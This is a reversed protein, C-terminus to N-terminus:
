PRAPEGSPRGEGSVAPGAGGRTLFRAMRRPTLLPVMAVLWLVWTVGYPHLTGRAWVGAALATGLLAVLPVKSPPGRLSDWAAISLLAPALYYDLNMPDFVVRLALLATLAALPDSLGRGGRLSLPVLALSALLVLVTADGRTLGLPLKATQFDIADAGSMPVSRAQKPSVPYWISQVYVRETKTLSRSVAEYRAPNALAVPAVCVAAVLAALAGAKLRQPDLWRPEGIALLVPAVAILAWQKNGIALGLLVAALWPRGGTAAIVAGVCLAGGLFEEPHGTDISWLVGPSAVLLVATILRYLPPRGDKAARADVAVALAVVALLCLWSGLRHVLLLDSGGVVAAPARLLLSVIGVAPIADAFASLDGQALARVSLASHNEGLTLVYDGTERRTFAVLAALASLAAATRLPRSALVGRRYPARLRDTSQPEHKVGKAERGCTLGVARAQRGEHLSQRRAELEFEVREVGVHRTTLEAVAAAAPHLDLLVM